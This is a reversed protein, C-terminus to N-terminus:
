VNPPKGYIRDAVRRFLVLATRCWILVIIIRMLQFGAILTSDLGLVKGTLVMEAIGAPAMALVMTPVPYAALWAIAAAFLAMSGAAFLVVVCSAWLLGFLRTLFAPRFQAGLASGIVVQAAILLLDPMRGEILGLHSAGAALFLPAMLWANPSRTRSLLSAAVASVALLVLVPLWPVVATALYPNRAGGGAFSVVLFPAFVVILAVRTTQAVMIPELHGGYQPALNTTEIVGGPVTAFFATTRDIGTLRMYLLGGVAGVLTSIFAAGIILPLLTVLKAVVAATFQLGTSAGVVITGAPRGWPILRVPAGALSLAMITLLAGLLWPLPLHAYRAAYGGAVGAALTGAMALAAALRKPTRQFITIASMRIGATTVARNM